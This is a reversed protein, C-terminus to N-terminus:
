KLVVSSRIFSQRVFKKGSRKEVVDSKAAKGGETSEQLDSATDFAEDPSRSTLTSTRKQFLVRSSESSISLVSLLYSVELDGTVTALDIASATSLEKGKAFRSYSFAFPAKNHNPLGM